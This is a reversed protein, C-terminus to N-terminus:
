LSGAMTWGAIDSLGCPEDAAVNFEASRTVAAFSGVRLDMELVKEWGLEDEMVRWIGVSRDKRGVVLRAGTSVSIRGSGFPGMKRTFAEDFVVKSPGKLRGLPNRLSQAFLNPPAAPTFVLSMDWGGSALLPATLPNPSDVLPSYPPFIALARVDHVHVRKTATLHWESSSTTTPVLTFQCIRQDPGSTFVM